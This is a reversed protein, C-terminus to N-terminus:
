QETVGPRDQSLGTFLEFGCECPERPSRILNTQVSVFRETKCQPCNLVFTIRAWQRSGIAQEGRKIDEFPAFWFEIVYDISV